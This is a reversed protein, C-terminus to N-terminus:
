ARPHAKRYARQAHAGAVHTYIETTSIDTHGLMVQVSRLDAGGELLHTAFSHRLKHPSVPKTIGASRAHIKVRKFFAQRTLAGGRPSLFLVVSRAAHRSASRDVLHVALAQLAHEGLPVLRRKNGKGFASVVGRRLDVDGLKLGVLESVRLGAAYM